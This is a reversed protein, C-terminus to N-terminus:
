QQLVVIPINSISTWLINPNMRQTPCRNPGSVYLVGRMSHGISTSSSLTSENGWFEPVKGGGKGQVGAVM